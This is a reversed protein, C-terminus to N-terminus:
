ITATFFYFVLKVNKSMDFSLGKFLFPSWSHDGKKNQRELGNPQFGLEGYVNGTVIQDPGV